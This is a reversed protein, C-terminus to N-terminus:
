FASEFRACAEDRRDAEEVLRRMSHALHSGKIAELDLLRVERLDM